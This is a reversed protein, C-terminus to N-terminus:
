SQIVVMRNRLITLHLRISSIRTKEREIGYFMTREEVKKNQIRYITIYIVHNFSYRVLRAIIVKFKAVYVIAEVVEVNGKFCQSSAERVGVM